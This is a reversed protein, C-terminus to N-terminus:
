GACDHMNDFFLFSCGPGPQGPSDRWLGNSSRLNYSTESKEPPVAGAHMCFYVVRHYPHEHIREM